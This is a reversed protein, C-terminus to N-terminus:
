GNQNAITAISGEQGAKPEIKTNGPDVALGALTPNAQKNIEIKEVGPMAQVDKVISAQGLIIAAISGLIGNLFGAGSSINKALAPGFVDTMQGTSASLFALVAMTIMLYQKNTLSM